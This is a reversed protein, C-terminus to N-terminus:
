EEKDKILGQAQLMNELVKIDSSIDIREAEYLRDLQGHFAREVQDLMGEIKAKSTKVNESVFIQHELEAYYELLKAITPLYYSIFKRIENVKDPHEEVRKLISKSVEVIGDIEQSVKPNEIKENAQQLREIFHNGEEMVEYVAMESFSLEEEYTIAQDKFVKFKRMLYYALGTVIALLIYSSLRYMPLFLCGIVWLIGTMLYPLNSPIYKTRTVTKM